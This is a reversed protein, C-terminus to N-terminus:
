GPFESIHHLLIIWSLATHDILNEFLVRLFVYSKIFRSLSCVVRFASVAYFLQRTFHKAWLFRVVKWVGFTISDATCNQAFSSTPISANIFTFTLWGSDLAEVISDSLLARIIFECILYDIESEISLRKGRCVFCKWAPLLWTGMGPFSVLQFVDRHHVNVNIVDAVDVILPSAISSLLIWFFLWSGLSAALILLRTWSIYLLM